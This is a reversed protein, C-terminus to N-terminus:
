SASHTKVAMNVAMADEDATTQLRKVYEDLRVIADRQAEPVEHSYWRLTVSPDAHGLLQAVVLSPVGLVQLVTAVSHRLEHPTLPALGAKTVLQKFEYNFRSPELAKGRSNVFVIGDGEVTTRLERLRLVLLAPLPLLRISSETKAEV